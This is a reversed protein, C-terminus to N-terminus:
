RIYDLPNQAVGNYRVEFHLHPGTSNGTSGIAGIQQGKSVNEGMTVWSSSMHAYLTQFGNGHDIVVHLGYGYSWGGSVEVVYGSDAARVANGTWSAVDIARHGGWFKQTLDGSAPWGFNGSGRVANYPKAGTRPAAISPASTVFKKVGAPVFLEQSLVLPANIDLLQNSAFDVIQQPTVQYKQAIQLLTDGSRVLHLVGDTPPIKLQDGIKLVDPNQELAPNAWQVSEPNLGLQTAIGFITDGPQVTYTRVEMKQEVVQQPKRTFPVVMRPLAIDIFSDSASDSLSDSLSDSVISFANANPLSTETAQVRGITADAINSSLSRLSVDLQPLEIQSFVLILGAVALVSLHSALRVVAVHDSLLNEFQGKLTSVASEIAFEGSEHVTELVPISTGQSLNPQALPVAYSPTASTSVTPSAPPHYRGSTAPRSVLSSYDVRAEKPDLLTSRYRNGNYALNADESM